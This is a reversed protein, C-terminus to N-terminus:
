TDAGMEEPSYLGCTAGPYVIRALKSGATKRLMDDPRKVWNGSNLGALRAQEITYRFRVPKPQRRHKTEWEAYTGDGGVFMFYECNTDAEALSRILDASPCPKGEIVHFSDLATTAGVGIERGRLIVAFAAEQTAFKAYLRSNYLTAALKWARELSNPQLAMDWAGSTVALASETAKPPPESKRASVPELPPVPGKPAPSIPVDDDFEADEVDDDDPVAALPAPARKELLALADVPADTALTVLKLAKNLQEWNDALAKWMANPKAGDADSVALAEAIGVLSKCDNVLMAAKKPGIGPVGPVGDTTDGVLALWLAMDKPTVGFKARIEAPGRIEAAREGVAPVYMRVRDTVCAAVDKDACVLRVDECWASYELALTALLDDAEYGKARAISYGDKELRELVWRKQSVEADSPKERHAKYTELLQKRWYPPSDLCCVVHEVSDRVAAIRDLTAQACEGPQADRAQGHWCLAFLYSVDVLAISKPEGFVPAEELHKAQSM